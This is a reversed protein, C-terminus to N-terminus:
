RLHFILIVKEIWISYKMALSGMHLCLAVKPCSVPVALLLRLYYLQLDELKDEAVKGIEMWISCNYLLTQIIAAEWLDLGSLIGGIAQSRFDEVLLKAEMMAGRVKAQRDNITALISQSLSEALMDGLYKDENKEKTKISGCMLPVASLERRTVNAITPDGMLIYGTITDNLQLQKQKMVSDIKVNGARASAVDPALRLIDDQFIEPQIKVGGYKVEDSSGEFHENMGMDLNLQSVLAGGPSGQGIIEGVDTEHTVGCGTRIQISANKNLLFYTRYAKSDVGAEHLSNMVDRLSEKDFFATIDYIQAILGLGDHKYKAIVSKIVFLHQQPRNGEQGGIQFPTSAKLITDKLGGTVIM